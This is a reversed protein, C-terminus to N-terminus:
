EINLICNGIGYSMCITAPEEARLGPNADLATWTSNTTSVTASLCTKIRLGETKGTLIIGGNSEIWEHINKPISLSDM